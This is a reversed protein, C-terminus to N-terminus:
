NLNGFKRPRLFTGVLELSDDLCEAKDETGLGLIKQEAKQLVHAAQRSNKTNRPGCGNGNRSRAMAAGDTREQEQGILLPERPPQRM